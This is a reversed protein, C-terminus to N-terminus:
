IPRSGCDERDLSGLYSPNCTHAVQTVPVQSWITIKFSNIHVYKLFKETKTELATIILLYLGNLLLKKPVETLKSRTLPPGSVLLTQSGQELCCTIASPNPKKPKKVFKNLWLEQKNPPNKTTKSVLDQWTAWAPRYSMIRRGRSGL